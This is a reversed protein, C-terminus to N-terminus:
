HLGIYVPNTLMKVLMSQGHPKGSRSSVGLFGLREGLSKLGHKGQSFEEFAKQIVRVKSPDHEINRLKHNYVYGIPARGPWEGRRLKQRIGRKVNVGLNDSFHKSQAFSVQLMFLGQPTPEFWFTPFRLSAIQGTDVLYIIQGGDVSNRALRDPHWALIGLPEKSAQIKQIMHNFIERGPKKASKTEVFKEVIELGERKAYETVEVLQAEISMIQRDEDESSKRVYLFYKTTM